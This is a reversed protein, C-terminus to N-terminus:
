PFHLWKYSQSYSFLVKLDCNAHQTPISFGYEHTINQFTRKKKNVRGTTNREKAKKWNKIPFKRRKEKKKRKKQKRGLALNSIRM